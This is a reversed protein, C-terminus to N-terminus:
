YMHIYRLYFFSFINTIRFKEKYNSVNFVRFLNAKESLIESFTVKHSFYESNEKSPISTKSNMLSGAESNSQIEKGLTM